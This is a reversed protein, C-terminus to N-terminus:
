EQVARRASQGLAVGGLILALAAMARPHPQEGLVAIGVVVAVLPIMYNILSLFTPGASAILQFYVVNAVATSVVGLWVAAAVSPWAAHLRWPTDVVISLPIMFLAAVIMVAAAVVLAHMPPLRRALITNVAYCLAGALVALQRGLNAEDGLNGLAASGTLVLIGGFGLLFGAAKRVTAREGAVLFHALALTALPMVAMLIGTVGSGVRTQGVSILAFPLANGVFGMLLYIGWVGPESPFSLGRGRMILTLVFAAIALRTAVLTIPPLEFLTIKIFLFATGWLLALALLLLWDSLSGRRHM